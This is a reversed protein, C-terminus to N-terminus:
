RRAAVGFGRSGRMERHLGPRWDGDAFRSISCKPGHANKDDCSERGDVREQEQEEDYADDLRVAVSARFRGRADGDDDRHSVLFFEGLPCEFGEGDLIVCAVPFDDAHVVAGGVGCALNQFIEGGRVFLEAYERERLVKRLDRAGLLAGEFAGELNCLVFNEEGHVGVADRALAPNGGHGSAEAVADADDLTRFLVVARAGHRVEVLLEFGEAVGGHFGGSEAESM